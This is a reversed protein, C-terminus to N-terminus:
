LSLIIMGMASWLSMTWVPNMYVTDWFLEWEFSENKDGRVNNNMWLNQYKRDKFYRTKGWVSQLYFKEHWQEKLQKSKRDIQPVPFEDCCVDSCHKDVTLMSPIWHRPCSKSLVCLYEAYVAVRAASFRHMWFAIQKYKRGYRCFFQIKLKGLYHLLM